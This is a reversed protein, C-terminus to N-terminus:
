SPQRNTAETMWTERTETSINALVGNIADRLATDIKRVGISVSVDDDSVAFGNNGTFSVVRLTPNSAVIANAVPLEAIFGDAVSSLVSATLDGYTDLPTLRVVNPIQPILDDQLTALQAVLRAGNFDQLSTANAYNGNARVVIVQESRYYENTFNITQQREETPSMGAIIVDIDGSQLAPILGSWSIKKIVLTYGLQDAIERAMRVDYGDAYANQGQLQVTFENQQIATWNFPAYDAELGVVLIGKSEDFSAPACGALAFLAVIMTAMIFMKKM